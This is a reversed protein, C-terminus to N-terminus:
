LVPKSYDITPMKNGGYDPYVIVTQDGTKIEIRVKEDNAIEAYRKLDSKRITAPQSM